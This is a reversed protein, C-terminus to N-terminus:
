IGELLEHESVFKIIMACLHDENKPIEIQTLAILKVEYMPEHESTCKYFKVGGYNEGEDQLCYFLSTGEVRYVIRCYGSDVYEIILKKM